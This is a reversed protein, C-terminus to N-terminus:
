VVAAARLRDIAPADYGLEALLEGTHRGLAPSTAAKNIPASSLLIPPLLGGETVLGLAQVPASALAEAMTYLPECCADAAALLETWDQRTRSRFLARLDEYVPDGPLAAAFQQGLLDQRGVAQCFAAWFQQELAALTVYHGDQTQYVNYCVLGGTLDGTGRALPQGAMQRAFALPMCALAAGLLSGDVRQGRGTRDRELLAMLIGITAWLAGSVDALLAGPLAPPGLRPGTLDLLGALGVYNLDHGARDRYIGSPGYGTLACYVLRPNTQALFEYGLGLREMVGPRFSELLVDATSALRVFIERGEVSKLNLTLSKKGRNLAHFLQGEGSDPDLPPIHRLWDSGGPREVKIVETGFNALIYSCYPGPFLLSLDLVRM